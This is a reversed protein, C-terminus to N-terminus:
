SGFIVQKRNGPLYSSIAALTQSFCKRFLKQCRSGDDFSQLLYYKFIGVQKNGFNFKM